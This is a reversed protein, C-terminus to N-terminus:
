WSPVRGVGRLLLLIQTREEALVWRGSHGLGQRAEDIGELGLMGLDFRPAENAYAVGGRGERVM